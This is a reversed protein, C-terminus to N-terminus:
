QGARRRKAAEIQDMKRATVNVIMAPGSGDWRIGHAQGWGCGSMNDRHAPLYFVENSAMRDTKATRAVFAYVGTGSTHRTQTHGSTSKGTVLTQLPADPVDWRYLVLDGGFVPPVAEFCVKSIKGDPTDFREPQGPAFLPDLQYRQLDFPQAPAGARQASSPAPQPTRSTFIAQLVAVTLGIGIIAGALDRQSSAADGQRATSARENGARESEGLKRYTEMLLEHAQREEDLRREQARRDNEIQQRQSDSYGQGYATPVCLVTALGIWALRCSPSM